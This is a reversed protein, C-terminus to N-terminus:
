GAGGKSAGTALVTEAPAHSPELGRLLLAAFPRLPVGLVSGPIVGREDLRRRRAFSEAAVAAGGCLMAWDIGRGGGSVLYVLAIVAGLVGFGLGLTTSNRTQREPDFDFVAALMEQRRADLLGWLAAGLAVWVQRVAIVERRHLQEVEAPDYDVPPSRLTDRDYPRLVFRHRKEAGTGTETREVAAWLKGAYHIPTAHLTWHPKPLRSVVEFGAEEDGKAPVPRVDDRVGAFAGPPPRRPGRRLRMDRWVGWGFVFPASGAPQGGVAMVVRALSDVLVLLSLPLLTRTWGLGPHLAAFSPQLAWLLGTITLLFAPVGFALASALTARVAPVGLERELREQEAAPLLGVLPTALVALSTAQERRAEERVRAHERRCAEASLERPDRLPFSEDWPALYYAIRGALPEARMVEYWEGDVRVATGPFTARV